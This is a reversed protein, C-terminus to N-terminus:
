LTIDIGFMYSAQWPYIANYFRADSLGLDAYGDSNAKTFMEPDLYKTAKKLPSWYALNEGSFYVRIKEVNIKNSLREPLSYGFTLNKLRLYRSNQLYRDNILRLYAGSTYASYARPRPLYADPNDESWIKGLFDSPLYSVYPRSYGGWFQMM